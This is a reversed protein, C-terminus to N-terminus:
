GHIHELFHDQIAQTLIILQGAAQPGPEPEEFLLSEIALVPNWFPRHGSICEPINSLNDLATHPKPKDM